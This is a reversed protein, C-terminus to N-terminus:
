TAYFCRRTGQLQVVTTNLAICIPSIHFSTLLYSFRLLRQRRVQTFGAIDAFLITTEPYLSAIPTSARIVALSDSKDEEELFERVRRDANNGGAYQKTHKTKDHVVADALRDHVEAPFLSAIVANSREATNLVLKQRREVMYDYGLFIASTFFFILVGAVAFLIPDQSAYKDYMTDSPYVHLKFPCFEQNLPPGSYMSSGVAFSHLDFFNSTIRYEDYHSDHHDGRGLYKASPGNIQYSFTPNCPNEFVVVLGDNGPPLIDKILNRWFLSATLTGVIKQESPDYDGRYTTSSPSRISDLQDLIPFYQFLIYLSDM